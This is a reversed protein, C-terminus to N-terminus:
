CAGGLWGAITLFCTLAFYPPFNHSGVTKHFVTQGIEFDFMPILDRTSVDYLIRGSEWHKLDARVHVGLVTGQCSLDDRQVVDGPM